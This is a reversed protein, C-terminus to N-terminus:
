PTEAIIDTHCKKLFQRRRRALLVDLGRVDLRQTKLVDLAIEDVDLRLLDPELRLEARLMRGIRHERLKEVVDPDGQAVALLDRREEADDIRHLGREHLGLDRQREQLVLRNGDLPALGRAVDSGLGKVGNRLEDARVEDREADLRLFALEDLGHLPGDRGAFDDAGLDGGVVQLLDEVTPHLHNAALDGADRRVVVAEQEERVDHAIPRNRGVLVEGGLEEVPVSAGREEEAACEIREAIRVAVAAEPRNVVTRRLLLVAVIEEFAAIGEDGVVLAAELTRVVRRQVDHVLGVVKQRLREARVPLAIVDDPVHTAADAVELRLM